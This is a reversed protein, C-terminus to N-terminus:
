AYGNIALVTEARAQTNTGSSTSSEKGSLDFVLDAGGGEGAVPRSDLERAFHIHVAGEAKDSGDANVLHIISGTQWRLVVGENLWVTCVSKM